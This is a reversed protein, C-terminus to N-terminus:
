EDAEIQDAANNFVDALYDLDFGILINPHRYDNLEDLTADAYLACRAAERLDEVKPPTREM